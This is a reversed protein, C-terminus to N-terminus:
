KSNRRKLDAVEDLLEMARQFSETDEPSSILRPTVNKFLKQAKLASSALSAIESPTLSSDDKLKLKIQNLIATAIEMELEENETIELETRYKKNEKM